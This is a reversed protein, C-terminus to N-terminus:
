ISSPKPWEDGSVLFLHLARQAFEVAACARTIQNKIPCTNSTATRIRIGNNKVVPGIVFIRNLTRCGVVGTVFKKEARQKPTTRKSSYVRLNPYKRM